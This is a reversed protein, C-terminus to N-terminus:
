LKHELQTDNSTLWMVKMGISLPKEEFSTSNRSRSIYNYVETFHIKTKAWKSENLSQGSLNNAALTRALRYCGNGYGSKRELLLLRETRNNLLQTNPSSKFKERLCNESILSWPDFELRVRCKYLQTIYIISNSIISVKWLRFSIELLKGSLNTM